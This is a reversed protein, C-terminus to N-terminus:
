RNRFKMDSRLMKGILMRPVKFDDLFVAKGTVLEAADKRPVNVKGVYKYNKPDYNDGFNKM